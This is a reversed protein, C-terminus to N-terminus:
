GTPLAATWFSPAYIKKGQRTWLTSAGDWWARMGDLKESLLWGGGAGGSLDVKGEKWSHALM